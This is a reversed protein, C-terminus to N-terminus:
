AANLSRELPDFGALVQEVVAESLYHEVRERVHTVLQDDSREASWDEGAASASAQQQSLVRWKACWTISWLWM